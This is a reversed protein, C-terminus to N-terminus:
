ITRSHELWIKAFTSIREKGNLKWNTEVSGSECSLQMFCAQMGSSKYVKGIDFDDFEVLTCPSITM